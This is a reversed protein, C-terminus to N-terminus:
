EFVPFDWWAGFKGGGGDPSPFWVEPPIAGSPKPPAVQNNKPALSTLKDCKRLPVCVCCFYIFLCYIYICFIIIIHTYIYIYLLITYVHLVQIHTYIYIYKSHENYYCDCVIVIYSGAKHPTHTEINNNCWQNQAIVDWYKPFTQSNGEPLRECFCISLDVM